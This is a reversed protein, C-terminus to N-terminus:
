GALSDDYRASGTEQALVHDPAQALRTAGIDKRRPARLVIQCLVRLGAPQEVVGFRLHDDMQRRHYPADAGIHAIGAREEVLIEDNAGLEHLQRALVTYLLEEGGARDT